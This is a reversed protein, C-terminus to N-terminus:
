RRLTLKGNMKFFIWNKVYKMFWSSTSLRENACMMVLEDNDDVNRSYYYKQNDKIYLIIGYIKLLQNVQHFLNDEMEIMIFLM